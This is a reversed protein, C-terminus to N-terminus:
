IDDAAATSGVMTMNGFHAINKDILLPRSKFINPMHWPKIKSSVPPLYSVGSKTVCDEEIM